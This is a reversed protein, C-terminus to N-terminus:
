ANADAGEMSARKDKDKGQKESPMATGTSTGTADLLSFQEKVVQFFPFIIDTFNALNCFIACWIDTRFVWILLISYTPELCEKLTFLVWKLTFQLLFM